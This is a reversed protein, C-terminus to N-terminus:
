KREINQQQSNVNIQVYMDDEAIHNIIQKRLDLQCTSLSAVHMEHVKRSLANAM